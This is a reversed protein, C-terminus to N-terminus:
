EGAESAYRDTPSQPTGTCHHPYTSSWGRDSSYRDCHDPGSSKGPTGWLRRSWTLGVCPFSSDWKDRYDISEQIIRIYRSVFDCPLALKM